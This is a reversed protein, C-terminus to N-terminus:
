IENKKLDPFRARLAQLEVHQLGKIKATGTIMRWETLSMAWFESPAINYERAARKIWVAWPWQDKTM